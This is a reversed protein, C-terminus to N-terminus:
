YDFIAIALLRLDTDISLFTDLKQRFQFFFLLIDLDSFSLAGHRGNM